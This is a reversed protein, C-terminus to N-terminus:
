TASNVYHFVAQNASIFRADTRMYAIYGVQLFDAYRERLVMMQIGLVDRILYSSFDGYLISKANAAMQPMDQNITIPKGFLTDPEGALTGQQWIYRGENDKLKRLSLLTKDHLMFRGNKRVAPDPKHILELLDDMKVSTAQGTPGAVGLTSGTVVGQPQGSGTGTTFHVNHGRGFRTMMRDRVLGDFDFASDQLLQVPVKLVGTKYTYSGISVQGFTLDADNSVQTNEDIITAVASTDDNTPWPLTAGTETSLTRAVERVGGYAKLTTLLERQFEPAITYGGGPNSTTTAAGQIQGFSRQFHAQDEASLTNVAGRLHATIIRRERAAIGEQEDPSRGTRDQVDNRQEALAAEQAAARELATIQGMLKDAEAMMTESKAFDEDTAASNEILARADQILKARQQRLAKARM